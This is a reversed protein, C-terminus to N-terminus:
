TTATELQCKFEHNDAKPCRKDGCTPCVIMVSMKQEETAHARCCIGQNVWAHDAKGDGEGLCNPCGYRGCAAPYEHGCWECTTTVEALETLYNKMLSYAEPRRGQREALNVEVLIRAPTKKM